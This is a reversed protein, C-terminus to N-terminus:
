HTTKFFKSVAPSVRITGPLTENNRPSIPTEIWGADQMELLAKRLMEPNRAGPILGRRLEFTAVQTVRHRVIWGALEAAIREASPTGLESVVRRRHAGFTDVLKIARKTQDVNITQFDEGAAAADIMALVGSVRLILGPLKSTWSDM